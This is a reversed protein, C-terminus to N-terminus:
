VPYHWVVSQVITNLNSASYNHVVLGFTYGEPVRIAPKDLFDIIGATGHLGFRYVCYEPNSANTQTASVGPPFLAFSVTHDQSGGGSIMVKKIQLEQDATEVDSVDAGPAVADSNIGLVTKRLFSRTTARPM